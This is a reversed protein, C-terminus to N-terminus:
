ECLSYFSSCSMKEEFLNITENKGHIYKKVENATAMKRKGSAHTPIYKPPFFTRGITSEAHMIRDFYQPEYDIISQIESHRAMICPMCGVRSFGRKYLPNSEFGNLKIFDFVEKVNWTIIPRLVDHSYSRVFNQIEKKRYSYMKAKGKKDYGYPEFYYKFYSCQSEMKSRSESEDARIGQIILVNDKLGLIYDIFPKVKLEETCFRAKTSPFRGKDKSMGIFGDYKKSKLTILEIGLKEVVEEIHQYTYHHEWLTDCFVAKIKNGFQNKAWILTALSDKGGSFQVLIQM